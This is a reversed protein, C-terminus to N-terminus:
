SYAVFQNAVTCLDSQPENFLLGTNDQPTNQKWNTDCAQECYICLIM